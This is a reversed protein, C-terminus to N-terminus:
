LARVGPPLLFGDPIKGVIFKAAQANVMGKFNEVVANGQSRPHLLALRVCADAMNSLLFPTRKYKDHRHREVYSATADYFEQVQARTM